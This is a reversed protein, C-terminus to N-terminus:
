VYLLGQAQLKFSKVATILETAHYALTNAVALWKRWDLIQTCLQLGLAM